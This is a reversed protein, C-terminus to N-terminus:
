ICVCSYQSDGVLEHKGHTPMPSSGAVDISTCVAPEATNLQSCTWKALLPWTLAASTM